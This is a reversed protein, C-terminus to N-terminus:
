FQISSCDQIFINLNNYDNKFFLANVATLPSRHPTRFLTHSLCNGSDISPMSLPLKETLFPIVFTYPTQGWPLAERYLVKNFAWQGEGQPLPPPNAPCFFLSMLHEWVWIVRYLIPSFNTMATITIYINLSGISRDVPCTFEAWFYLKM